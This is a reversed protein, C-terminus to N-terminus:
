RLGIMDFSLDDKCKPSALNAALTTYWTALWEIGDNHIANGLDTHIAVDCTSCAERIAAIGTGVLMGFRAWSELAAESDGGGGCWLRGGEECSQGDGEWLM